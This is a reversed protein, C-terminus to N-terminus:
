LASCNYQSEGSRLLLSVLQVVRLQEELVFATIDQWFDDSRCLSAEVDITSDEGKKRRYSKFHVAAEVEDIQLKDSLRKVADKEREGLTVPEGSGANFKGTDIKSRSASQPSGFPRSCAALKASNSALFSELPPTLHGDRTALQELAKGFTSDLDPALLHLM